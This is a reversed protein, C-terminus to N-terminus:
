GLVTLALAVATSVDGAVQGVNALVLLFRGGQGLLLAQGEQEGELEVLWVGDALLRVLRVGTSGNAGDTGNTGDTVTAKFPLEAQRGRAAEALALLERGEEGQPAIGLAPCFLAILTPLDPPRRGTELRSIQGESYGVAIGLESQTLRARRRLLRLYAGFTTAPLSSTSM